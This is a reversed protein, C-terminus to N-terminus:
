TSPSKKISDILEMVKDFILRWDVDYDHLVPDANELDEVIHHPDVLLPRICNEAVGPSYQTLVDENYVSKTGYSVGPKHAIWVPFMLGSSLPTIHLDMAYSWVITEHVMSGICNYTTVDSPLADIIKRYTTMEKNIIPEWSDDEGEKRSCGSFIIAVNPFDAHIKKIINAIGEVQSLWQRNHVRIAFWLIPFHKKANEVQQLFSTSCKKVSVEYLNDILSSKITLDAIRGSVYNNSLISKFITLGKSVTPNEPLYSIKGKTEPFLTELGLFDNQVFFCDIYSLLGNEYLYYIGTIDNWLYHAIQNLQGLVLAKEKLDPSLYSKALKWCSVMNGKLRDIVEKYGSYIYHPSFVVILELRPFYIAQKGAWYHGVLLYFVELGVFRYSFMPLWAVDYFSQNSRIIKGSCPCISYVYGTEVLSQHFYRGQGLNKEHWLPERKVKQTLTVPTQETSSHFSNIYIEELAKNDQGILELISLNIGSQELYNRDEETLSFGNIIKYQSTRQFYAFSIEPKIEEFYDSEELCGLQNLGRWISEYIHEQSLQVVSVKRFDDVAEDLLGQEAKELSIKSYYQSIERGLKQYVEAKDPQLQTAKQYCDFALELQKQQVSVIGLYFYTDGLPQISAANHYALSAEEWRNLDKLANGLNHHSWFHNPEIKIASQYARIANEWQEQQMFIDGLFHHLWLSNPTQEIKSQYTVVADQWYQPQKLKILQAALLQHTGFCEPNCKIAGLYALTAEEERNLAKLVNGLNNHSWFYDPSIQIANQYCLVAKEWLNHQTFVDGLFHHLSLVNPTKQIQTQYATVINQWDQYSKIKSLQAALKQHASFSEPNIEISRFYHTIAENWNELQTFLDGLNQHLEYNDPNLEITRRYAALAEEINGLKELINGLQLWVAWNNPQVQLLNQYAQVNYPNLEISHRYSTIAEALDSQNRQKLANALAYHIWDDDPSLESARRYAAITEDLQGLKELSKGLGVYTGFHEPNLEIAKRFATVSEEWQQQEALADGLHHYSWSFDPKIAIAHRYATIAEDWRGLKALAEGMHHYAWSDNSNLELTRHYAAIAEELNSEEQQQQDKHFESM